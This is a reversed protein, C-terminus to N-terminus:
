TYSNKMLSNKDEARPTAKNIMMIMVNETRASNVNASILASSALILANAINKEASLRKATAAKILLATILYISM